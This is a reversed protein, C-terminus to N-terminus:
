PEKQEASIQRENAEIAALFVAARKKSNVFPSSWRAIAQEATLERCAAWYIKTEKNYRLTFEGATALRYWLGTRDKHTLETNAASYTREWQVDRNGRGNGNHTLTNGAADYTCKHWTGFSDVHTLENGAEDFSRKSWIGGSDEYTLRRGAADYTRKRWTGKGDNFSEERWYDGYTHGLPIDPRDIM